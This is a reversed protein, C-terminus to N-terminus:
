RSVGWERGGLPWDRRPRREDELNFEELHELLSFARYPSIFPSLVSPLLCFLFYPCMEFLSARPCAPYKFLVFNALSVFALESGSEFFLSRRRSTREASLQPAGDGDAM